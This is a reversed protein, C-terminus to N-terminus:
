EFTEREEVHNCKTCVYIQILVPQDYEAELELNYYSDVLEMEINCNKCNM